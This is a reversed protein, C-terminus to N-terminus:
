RMGRKEVEELGRKEVEVLWREVMRLKKEIATRKKRKAASNKLMPPENRAALENKGLMVQRKVQESTM